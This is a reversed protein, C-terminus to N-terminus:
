PKVEQKYREPFGYMSVEVHGECAYYDIHQSETDVTDILKVQGWCPGGRDEHPCDMSSGYLTLPQYSPNRM